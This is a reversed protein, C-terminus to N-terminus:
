HVLFISGTFKNQKRKARKWFLVLIMLLLAKEQVSSTRLFIVKCSRVKSPSDSDEAESKEKLKLHAVTMTRRKSLDKEVEM